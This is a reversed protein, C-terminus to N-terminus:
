ARNPFSIWQIAAAVHLAGLYPKATKDYRTAVARWEKLHGITREVANRRRYAHRDYAVRPHTPQAPVCPEAGAARIADRWAASSYGRDCVVRGLRGLSCLRALMAGGAALESAQGPAISLVLVRGLADAAM